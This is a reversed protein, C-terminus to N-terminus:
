PLRRLSLSLSGAFTRAATASTCHDAGTNPVPRSSSLEIDVTVAAAATANRAAELRPWAPANPVKQVDSGVGNHRMRLRLHQLEDAHGAAAGHGMLAIAHGTLLM